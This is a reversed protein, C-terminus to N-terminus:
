VMEQLSALNELAQSVLRPNAPNSTLMAQVEPDTSDLSLAFATTGAELLQDLYKESALSLGNSALAIDEFGLSKLFAVYEVLGARSTPEGGVLFAKKFGEGRAKRALGNLEPISIDKELEFDGHIACYRCSQNCGMSAASPYDYFVPRMIPDGLRSNQDALAYFYPMLRYREEVFRRRIALHDPWRGM